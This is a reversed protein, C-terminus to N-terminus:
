QIICHLFGIEMKGSTLETVRERGLRLVEWLDTARGTPTPGKARSRTKQSLDKIFTATKGCTFEKGQSTIFYPLKLKEHIKAILAELKKLSNM